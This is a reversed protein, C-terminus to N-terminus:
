FCFNLFCFALNALYRCGGMRSCVWQVMSAVKVLLAFKLAAADNRISAFCFSVERRKKKKERARDSILFRQEGSKGRMLKKRIGDMVELM